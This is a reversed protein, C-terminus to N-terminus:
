LLKEALGFMIWFWYCQAELNGWYCGLENVVDENNHFKPVQYEFHEFLKKVIINLIPM